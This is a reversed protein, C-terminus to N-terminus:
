TGRRRSRDAPWAPDNGPIHSPPRAPRTVAARQSPRPRVPRTHYEAAFRRFGGRRGGSSGGPQRRTHPV